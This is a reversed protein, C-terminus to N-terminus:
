DPQVWSWKEFWLFKKIDYKYGIKYDNPNFESAPMTISKRKSTKEINVM